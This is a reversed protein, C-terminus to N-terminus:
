TFKESLKIKNKLEPTLFKDIDFEENASLKDKFKKAKTRLKAEISKILEEMEIM